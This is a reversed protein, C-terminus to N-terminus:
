ARRSQAAANPSLGQLLLAVANQARTISLGTGAELPPKPLTSMGVKRVIRKFYMSQGNSVTTRDWPNPGVYKQYGMSPVVCHRRGTVSGDILEVGVHDTLSRLFNGVSLFWDVIFSFPILEWALSLPNLLGLRNALDLAPNTVRIRGKVTVRDKFNATYSGVAGPLVASFGHTGVSKIPADPIAKSLVEMASQIDQMLPSWGYRFELLISGIDKLLQRSRRARDESRERARKSLMGSDGTRGGALGKLTQNPNQTMYAWADGLRGRRLSRAFGSLQHARSAIMELSKGREVVNLLVEASPREALKQFQRYAKAYAPSSEPQWSSQNGWVNTSTVQFTMLKSPATAEIFNMVFPSERKVIQGSERNSQWTMELRSILNTNGAISPDPVTVDQFKSRNAGM